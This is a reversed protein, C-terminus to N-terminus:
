RGLDVDLLRSGLSDVLGQTGADDIECLSGTRRAPRSGLPRFSAERGHRIVEKLLPMGEECAARHSVFFLRSEM